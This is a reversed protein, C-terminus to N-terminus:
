RVEMREDFAHLWELVDDASLEAKKQQQKRLKMGETLETLKQVLAEDDPHRKLAMKIRMYLRRYEQTLTDNKMKRARTANAGVDRCQKSPEQPSPYGCYLSDSRGVPVFYKGCNKCKVFKTDADIAHAAEFMILSLSSKINYVSHFGNDYLLIQFDIHQYDANETYLSWFAKVQNEEYEKDSALMDFLNRFVSYSTAYDYYAMLMAQGITDVGFEEYDTDKLIFSKIQEKREAANASAILKQLEERNAKSYNAMLNSFDSIVMGATVVGFKELLSDYLSMLAKGGNERLEKDQFYPNSLVVAKLETPRLRAYECAMGGIPYDKIVDGMMVVNKSGDFEVLLGVDM